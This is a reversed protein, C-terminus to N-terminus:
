KNLSTAFLVVTYTYQENLNHEQKTCHESFQHLFILQYLPLCSSIDYTQLPLSSTIDYM